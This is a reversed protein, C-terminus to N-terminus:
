NECARFAQGSDPFGIAMVILILATEPLAAALQSLNEFVGYSVVDQQKFFAFWGSKCGDVGVCANNLMM